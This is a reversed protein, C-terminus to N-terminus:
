RYVVYLPVRLLFRVTMRANRDCARSDYFLVITSIEVTCLKISDIVDQVFVAPLINHLTTTALCVSEASAGM